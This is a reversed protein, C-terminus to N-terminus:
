TYVTRRCAAVLSRLRTKLSSTFPTSVRTFHLITYVCVYIYIYISLSLSLYIYICIYIYICTYIYIYICVYVCVYIPAGDGGPAQVGGRLGLAIAISVASYSILISNPVEILSFLRHNFQFCHVSPNRVIDLLM